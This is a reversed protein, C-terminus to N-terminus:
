TFLRAPHRHTGVPPQVLAPEADVVGAVLWPGCERVELIQHHRVAVINMAQLVESRANKGAHPSVCGVARDPALPSHPVAQAGVSSRAEDSQWTANPFINQVIRM